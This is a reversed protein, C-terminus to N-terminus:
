DSGMWNGLTRDGSAERQGRAEKAAPETIANAPAQEISPEPRGVEPCILKLGGNRRGSSGIM